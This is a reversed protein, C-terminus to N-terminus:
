TGGRNGADTEGDDMADTRSHEKLCTSLRRHADRLEELRKANLLALACQQAFIELDRIEEPGFCEERECYVHLVGISGNGGSRLPFTASSRYGRRHAEESCPTFNSDEYICRSIYPKGTLISIGSPSRGEPTVDWRDAITDLYGDDFGRSAVPRITFDDQALGVWCMRYGTEVIADCAIELVDRYNAGALIGENMRRLAMERRLGMRLKSEIERLSLNAETLELTREVVRLELEDHSRRLEAEIRRRESFDRAIGVTGVIRGSDDRIPVKITELWFSRGRSDLLPEELRTMRGSRMVQRDDARYREALDKPWLDFDTKGVLDDPNKGCALAFPRNVAIYRSEVDKFWAIDPISDLLAKNRKHIEVLRRNTGLLEAACKGLEADLRFDADDNRIQGPSQPSGYKGSYGM